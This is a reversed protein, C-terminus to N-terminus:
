YVRGRSGAIDSPVNGSGYSRAPTAGTAAAAAQQARRRAMGDITGDPMVYSSRRAPPAAAAEDPRLGASAVAGAAPAQPPASGVASEAPM